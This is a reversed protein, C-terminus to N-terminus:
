NGAAAGALSAVSVAGPAPAHRTGPTPTDSPLSRASRTSRSVATTNGRTWWYLQRTLIVAGIGLGLAMWVPLLFALLLAGVVDKFATLM